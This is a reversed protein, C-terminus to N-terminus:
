TLTQKKKFRGITSERINQPVIEIKNLFIPVLKEVCDRYDKSDELTRKVGDWEGQSFTGEGTVKGLGLLKLRVSAVGDGKMNVDWYTGAHDPKDCVKMVNETISDVPNGKTQAEAIQQNVLFSFCFFMNFIIEKKM